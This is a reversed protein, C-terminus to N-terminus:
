GQTQFVNSLNKTEEEQNSSLASHMKSKQQFCKETTWLCANLLGEIFAGTSTSFLVFPLSGSWFPLTSLVRWWHFVIFVVKAWSERAGKGM